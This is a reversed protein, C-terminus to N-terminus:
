AQLQRAVVEALDLVKVEDELDLAKTGDTLMTMCFPCAVCITKVGTALAQKTRENNIREGLHEEMWMRGGGAGCCYSKKGHREMERLEVGGIRGLASRPPQYIGNYRGLYCPDHFTLPWPADTARLAIRKHDILQWILESHHIVDLEMGFQRYDHKFANYCHPCATVIKKFKYKAFIERVAEVMQLYLYENGMRRAPDGNCREENGLIAFDVQAAKLIKVLAQQIKKARDDTAGACGVWFLYEVERGGQDRLLPVDLGACWEERKDGGIAWPNGQVEMGKFCATLESPFDSEMMVLHRRLDILSVPVSEILVPCAEVCAACTTCSWLEDVHVQGDTPYQGMFGYREKAIEERTILEAPRQEPAPPLEAGSRKAARWAAKWPLLAHENRYLNLKLDHVVKKPKLPKHSLHAPCVDNCRACETCAFSDLLTKFSYQEIRSKGFVESNEFDLLQPQGRPTFRRLFINPFAAILHLHKSYPLYNLFSFFILLHSWLGIERWLAVTDRAAPGFLPSGAVGGWQDSVGFLLYGAWYSWPRYWGYDDGLAVEAGNLLFFTAYLVVIFWLINEADQSRPSLRVPRHVWRRVLAILSVPVILIAAYDQSLLFLRYVLAGFSGTPKLLHFGIGGDVWGATVERLVLEFHGVSLTIFGYLFFLHMAGAWFDELLKKEGFVYAIGAEVRYVVLDLLSESEGIAILRVLRAFNWVAIGFAAVFLFAVAAPTGILWGIAVTLLLAILTVLALKRLPM